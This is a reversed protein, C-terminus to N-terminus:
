NQKFDLMDQVKECEHMYNEYFGFFLQKAELSCICSKNIDLLLLM